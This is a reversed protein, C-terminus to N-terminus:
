LPKGPKNKPRKGSWNGISFDINEIFLLELSKKEILLQDMSTPFLEQNKFVFFFLFYYLKKITVRYTM